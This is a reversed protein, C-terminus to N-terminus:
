GHLDGDDPECARPLRGDEVREGTAMGLGAPVTAHLQVDAVDLDRVVPQVPQGLDELGLLDDM